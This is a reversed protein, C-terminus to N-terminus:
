AVSKNKQLIVTHTPTGQNLQKEVDYKITFGSRQFSQYTWAEVRQLILLGGPELVRGAEAITKPITPSEMCSGIILGASENALPLRTSDAEFDVKGWDFKHKGTDPDFFPTGPKINSTFVKKDLKQFDILDYGSQTPGAVEIFAGKRSRLEDALRFSPDIKRSIEHETELAFFSNILGNRVQPTIKDQIEAIADLYRLFRPLSHPELENEFDM